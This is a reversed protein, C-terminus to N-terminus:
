YASSYFSRCKARLRNQLQKNVKKNQAAKQAVCLAAKTLSANALNPPYDRNGVEETQTEM